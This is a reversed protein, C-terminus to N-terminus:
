CHDCVYFIDESESTLIDEISNSHIHFNAEEVKKILNVLKNKSFLDILEDKFIRIIDEINSISYLSIEVEFNSFLESSAIFKRKDKNNSM